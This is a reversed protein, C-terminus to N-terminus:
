LVLKRAHFAEAFGSPANCGVGRVRLLGFFTAEDFWPRSRQSAFCRTILDVKREAQAREVPVFLNPNGLDGEYKPIEYELIPHDRFTNWTLDSVLRHDQHADDKFHTFILSPQFEGKVQEFLEKVTGWQQPLFSERLSHLDIRREVARPLFGEVARRAEDHREPSGTFVVWRLTIDPMQATLRLLTAGCGIEIDDCHAGLCLIRAPAASLPGFPLPHM